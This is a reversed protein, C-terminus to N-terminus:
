KQLDLLDGIRINDSPDKYKFTMAGPTFTMEGLYVTEDIEYFDVRVFKFPESLKKSYEAMENFYFPQKYDLSPPVKYDIREFNARKQGMNYHVIPGHGHGENITYFEPNGNFCWFKYDFLSDGNGDRMRKEAFIRHPIDHYHIEVGNRFAFDDKMWKDLNRIAATKNLKAKDNVIINMGSGHNCKMVFENPLEDWNIESIDNYMKIIPICIDKGLKEKCYEHLLIKDACKVKLPNTDYFNLWALKEQITRPNDMNFSLGIRRFIARERDIYKLPDISYM